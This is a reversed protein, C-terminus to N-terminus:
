DDELEEDSEEPLLEIDTPQPGPGVVSEIGYGLQWSTNILRLWQNRLCTTLSGEVKWDYLFSRSWWSPSLQALLRGAEGYLESASRETLVPLRYELLAAFYLLYRAKAAPLGLVLSVLLAHRVTPYTPNTLTGVTWTPDVRRAVDEPTLTAGREGAEAMRQSVYGRILKTYRRGAELTIEQEPLPSTADLFVRRVEAGYTDLPGDELVRIDPAVAPLSAGPFRWLELGRLLFIWRTGAAVCLWAPASGYEVRILTRIHSPLAVETSGKRVTRTTDDPRVIGKHTPRVGFDVPEGDKLYVVGVKRRPKSPRYGRAIQKTRVVDGHRATRRELHEALPKPSPPKPTHVM